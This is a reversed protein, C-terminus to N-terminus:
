ALKRAWAFLMARKAEAAHSESKLEPVDNVRNRPIAILGSGYVYYTQAGRQPVDTENM